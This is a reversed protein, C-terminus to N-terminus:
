AMLELSVIWDGNYYTLSFGTRDINAVLDSPSLAITKGNRLVNVAYFGQRFITIVDGNFPSAPLTINIPAAASLALIRQGATATISATTSVFPRLAGFTKAAIAAANDAIANSATALDTRLTGIETKQAPTVFVRTSTQNINDAPIGSNLIATIQAQLTAASASLTNIQAQTSVILPNIADNLRRVGFNQLEAQLAALGTSIAELLVLRAHIDGLIMNSASRDFIARAPAPDWQYGNSKSPLASPM